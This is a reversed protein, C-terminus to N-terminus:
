AQIRTLLEGAESHSLVSAVGFGKRFFALNVLRFVAPTWGGTPKELICARLAGPKWHITFIRIWTTPVLIRRPACCSRHMSGSEAICSFGEMDLSARPIVWVVNLHWFSMRSVM